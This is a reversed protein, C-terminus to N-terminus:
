KWACESFAYLSWLAAVLRLKSGSQFIWHARSSRSTRVVRRSFLLARKAAVIPFFVVDSGANLSRALLLLRLWHFRVSSMYTRLKIRFLLSDLLEKNLCQSIVEYSLALWRTELLNKESRLWVASPSETDVVSRQIHRRIRVAPGNGVDLSHM